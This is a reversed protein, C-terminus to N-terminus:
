FDTDEFLEISEIATISVPYTAIIKDTGDNKTKTFFYAGESIYFTEAVIEICSFHMGAHYVKLHFVKEEM